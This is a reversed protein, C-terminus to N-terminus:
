RFLSVAQTAMERVAAVPDKFAKALVSLVEEVADGGVFHDGLGALEKAIAERLRWNKIQSWAEGLQRLAQKGAELTFCRLLSSLNALISTQIQAYDHLFWTFPDFLSADSQEPGIIKAIEHMSSALSQRVKDAKDESLAAYCPQLKPWQDRGLTLVM